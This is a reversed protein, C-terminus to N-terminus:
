RLALRAPARRAKRYRTFQYAGLAWGLAAQIPDALVGEDALQYDGEPLHCPLAALAALPAAPDVGALVRVLKGAADTLLVFTGAAATFGHESVLRRQPAELRRRCAALHATDVTEIAINRRSSGSREILASM